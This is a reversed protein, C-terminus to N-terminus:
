LSSLTPLAAYNGISWNELSAILDLFLALAGATLVFPIATTVGQPERYETQLLTVATSLERDRIHWAQSFCVWGTSVKVCEWGLCRSLQLGLSECTIIKYKKLSPFFHSVSIEYLVQSWPLVSNNQIDAICFSKSSGCWSVLFVCTHSAQHRQTFSVFGGWFWGLVAQLIIESGSFIYYWFM